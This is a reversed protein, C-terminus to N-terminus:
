AIAGDFLYAADTTIIKPEFSCAVEVYQGRVEDDRWVRTEFNTDSWILMRAFNVTDVPNVYALICDKGWLESFSVTVGEDASNYVAEAVVVKMGQLMSPIGGKTVPGDSHYKLIEKITPHVSLKEEVEASMFIINPRRGIADMIMRKGTAIDELPVSNTKDDWTNSPTVVHDPSSSSIGGTAATATSMAEIEMALNVRHSCRFAADKRLNFIDGQARAVDKDEVLEKIAHEYTHYTLRDYAGSGIEAPAGPARRPAGKFYGEKKVTKIYGSEDAVTLAPFLSSWAFNRIGYQRSVGTLYKDTRIKGRDFGM